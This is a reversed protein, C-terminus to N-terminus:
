KSKVAPSKSKDLRKEVAELDAKPVFVSIGNGRVKSKYNFYKGIMTNTRMGDLLKDENVNEVSLLEFRDDDGYKDLDPITIKKNFNKRDITTSLDVKYKAIQEEFDMRAGYKDYPKYEKMAETVKEALKAQFIELISTQGLEVYDSKELDTAPRFINTESM